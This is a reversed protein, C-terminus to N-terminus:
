QNLVIIDKYRFVFILSSFVNSSSVVDLNITLLFPELGVHSLRLIGLICLIGSRIFYLSSCSNSTVERDSQLLVVTQIAWM